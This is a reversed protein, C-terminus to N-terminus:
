PNSPSQDNGGGGGGLALAAVLAAGLVIGTVGGPTKWWPRKADVVLKKEPADAAAKKPAPEAAKSAPPTTRFSVDLRTTGPTRVALPPVDQVPLRSGDPAVVGDLKYRGGVPVTVQYQGLADTTSSTFISGTSVDRYAVQFGAAPKGSPDLVVGTFQAAASQAFVLGAGSPLLSAAVILAVLKRIPM